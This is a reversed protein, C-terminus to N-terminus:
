NFIREMFTKDGYAIIQKELEENKLAEDKAKQKWYNLKQNLVEVTEMSKLKESLSEIKKDYDSKIELIEEDKKHNFNTLDNELKENKIKLDNNEKTLILSKNYRNSSNKFTSLEASLNRNENKLSDLSDTYKLNIKKLKELDNTLTVLRNKLTNIIMNQQASGEKSKIFIQSKDKMLSLQIGRKKNLEETIDKQISIAGTIKGISNFTTIMYCDTYYVINEKTSNKLKGHWPKNNLVSEKIQEFVENSTDSHKLVIFDQGILENNDYGTISCFLENVYTINLNADLKIVINNSDIIEKYKELDATQKKILSEQYLINALDNISVLFKKIDIPKVIYEYVKLKIAEFLFSSDSHATAFFVPVTSGIDRIKKVMDIGSLKPMNIDTLVLDIDKQNTLFTRLGSEGDKEIFVKGFFGLLLNSLENRIVDDDEVYLIKLRKLLDKDIAM